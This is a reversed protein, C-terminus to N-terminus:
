AGVAVYDVSRCRIAVYVAVVAGEVVILVDRVTTEMDVLYSEHDVAKGGLGRNMALSVGVSIQRLCAFRVM